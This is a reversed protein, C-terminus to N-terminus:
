PNVKDSFFFSPSEAQRRHFYEMRLAMDQFTMGEWLKASLNTVDRKVYPRTRPNGGHEDALIAIINSTSINHNHLAVIMQYDEEPVNRHSRYYRTWEQHQLMEHTNEEVFYTVTWKGERLAIIM